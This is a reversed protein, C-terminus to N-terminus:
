PRFSNHWQTSKRVGPLSAAQGNCKYTNCLCVTASHGEYSVSRCGLSGGYQQYQTQTACARAVFTQGLCMNSMYVQVSILLTATM